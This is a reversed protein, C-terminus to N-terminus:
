KVVGAAAAVKTWKEIESAIYDRFEDPGGQRVTIGQASLASVADPNKLAAATAGALKDIIGRPTGSPAMLGSWVTAEFGSLGQEALTPVQPAFVVREREAVGIAILKGDEVQPLVSSVAGFLLQIRGALVDSLAQSSGPYPVHVLSVGTLGNFLQGAFHAASGVGSSGYFIQGPKAKALAILQQVNNAGLSPNAALMIPSDAVLSVPALDKVFDFAPDPATAARITNAVNSLYLTYGDKAARGVFEAAINNGGGPRNEIVIPENLSQQLKQGLLRATIDSTSGPSFGVVIRIPRTPYDDAHARPGSFCILVTLAFATARRSAYTIIM